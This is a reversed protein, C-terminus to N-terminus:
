PATDEFACAVGDGSVVFGDWRLRVAADGWPLSVCVEREDGAESMVAKAAAGNIVFWTLFEQRATKEATAATLHWENLKFGAWPAPPTDFKDTQTITLAQPHLFRVDVRGPEGQWQMANEGTEFPGPAHLLWQYTAPEPAIVLDHILVAYPKFFLIRRAWRDLGKYSAGAEGAVVDLRESTHFHTLCGRAEPTHVMQGEGDVLIANDSKTEWMWLRHHPSGHIDRRGSAIFVPQGGLHLLFANNANYGHSVRGYPSSKFIVQVNQTADLLTTNLAALGVDRFARSQPLGSPPRPTAHGGRADQGPEQIVPAVDPGPSAAYLFGLYGDPFPNGHQGAYWQWYPNGAASALVAMLRASRDSGTTSGMDAFGATRSGPPTVYLPYYGAERFYPQQFADIGYAARVMYVWYLFREMYSAWYGVGEHWGGETGGWVPYATYFITMAYDLWEGAEPIEGYFATALEGLFHWARNRHSEFPFWLHKCRQLHEYAQRGRAQMMTSIRAREEATLAAYTWSFARSPMYLLPMAAEDNYKYQTSGEPDWACLALLLDRAGHAYREEGTMQYVFGLLAAGDGVAIARMRNGWWIKKWEEGKFETGKPYLPPESTDPPAALLKDAKQRLELFPGAMPGQALARLRPVDGPRFFLRPHEQPLRRLLEERGPQPFPIADEPVQFRRVQSWATQEGAATVAAYRWFYEGPPLASAPCYANWPIAVRDLVLPEFATSASIQLRYSCPYDQPRWTFSPPSVAVSAGDEPRYGWSGADAPSEDLPVAGCLFAHALLLFIGPIAAAHRSKMGKRQEQMRETGAESVTDGTM